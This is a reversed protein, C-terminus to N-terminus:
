TRAREAFLRAFAELDGPDVDSVAWFQLGRATWHTVSYGEHTRGLAPRRLTSDEPWVFVNIVHKNRRYVLAAVTRRDLYDLRGGILPYGADALEVVPPAFDVKGNFWPKVTHRDSTGVDVLHAGFTSRVHDAVLQEELAGTSPLLAMMAFAAAMAGFGGSLGWPLLALSRRRPSVTEADIMAEIRSRLAPPARERLEPASFRERLGQLEGLAESCGACTKLHAEFTQTNAADLEGDFYAHLMPAKDPCGSM